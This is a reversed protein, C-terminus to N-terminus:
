QLISGWVANDGIIGGGWIETCRYVGTNCGGGEGLM